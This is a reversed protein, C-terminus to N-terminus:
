ILGEVDARLATGAKFAEAFLAVCTGIVVPLWPIEFYFAPPLGGLDIGGLIAGSCSLRAFGVIPVGFALLAALLRMRTVNRLTFAEGRGIDHMLRIVLWCALLILALTLVGPAIDLLRQGTTPDDVLLEYVGEGHEVGTRDLQPVSIESIFPVALHEGRSWSIVPAVVQSLGTVVAVLGLLAALGFRDSRDFTLWDRRRSPRAPHSPTAM